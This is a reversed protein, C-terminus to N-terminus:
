SAAKTATPVAQVSPPVPSAALRAQAVQVDKQLKTYTSSIFEALDQPNSQFHSRTGFYGFLLGALFTLAPIWLETTDMLLKLM